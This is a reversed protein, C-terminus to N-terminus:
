QLWEKKNKFFAQLALIWMLIFTGSCVSLYLKIPITQMHGRYTIGSLPAIDPMQEKNFFAQGYESQPKQGEPTVLIDAGHAAANDIAQEISRINAAIDDDMVCLQAASVRLTKM